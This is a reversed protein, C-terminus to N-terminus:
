FMGFHVGIRPRGQYGYPYRYAPYGYVPYPRYYRPRYYGSPRYYARRYYRRPAYYVRRPRYYRRYRRYQMYSEAPASTALAAPSGSGVPTASAPVGAIVLYGGMFAASVALLRLRM